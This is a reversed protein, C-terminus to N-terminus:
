KWDTWEGVWGDKHLGSKWAVMSGYMRELFWEILWRYKRFNM